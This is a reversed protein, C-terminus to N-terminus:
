AAPPGPSPPDPSQPPRPRLLERVEAPFRSLMDDSIEFTYVRSSSHRWDDLAVRILEKIPELPLGVEALMAENQEFMRDCDAIVASVAQDLRGAAARSGDGRLVDGKAKWVAQIHPRLMERLDRGFSDIVQLTKPDVRDLWRARAESPGLVCRGYARAETGDITGRVLHQCTLVPALPKFQMDLGVFETARFASCDAFDSPFPKPYPCEDRPRGPRPARIGVASSDVADFDGM